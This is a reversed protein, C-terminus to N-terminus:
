FFEKKDKSFLTNQGNLLDPLIEKLNFTTVLESIEQDNKLSHILKKRLKRQAKREKLVKLRFDNINKVM